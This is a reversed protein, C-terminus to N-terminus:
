LGLTTFSPIEGMRGDSAIWRKEKENLEVGLNDRLANRLMDASGYDKAHRHRERQEVIAAIEAESAMRGQAKVQACFTAAQQAEGSPAQQQQQQQQMRAAQPMGPMPPGGIRGAAMNVGALLGATAAPTSAESALGQLTQLLQYAANPNQAQVSQAATMIAASLDAPSQMRSYQASAPYAHSAQSMGGGMGLAAMAFGPMPTQQPQATALAKATQPNVAGNGGMAAQIDTWKPVVGGRDSKTHWTKEKDMIEVGHVRLEDRIMDSTAYDNNQRAKERQVVLTSIELDTPEGNRQWGIIVGSAGSTSRWMKEKDLLDVGMNKLEDRIRDSSDFDKAARAQERSLVLSKIYALAEEGQTGTPGSILTPINSAVVDATAGQTGAGGGGGQEIETWTPIRGCRGDNAQWRSTKDFLAVGMVRLKERLVDAQAWDKSSRAQERQIVFHQIEQESGLVAALGGRAPSRSRGPVRGVNPPPQMTMGAMAMAAAWPQGPSRRARARGPPV